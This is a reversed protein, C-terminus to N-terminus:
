TLAAPMISIPWEPVRYRVDSATPGHPNIVRLGASKFFEMAEHMEIEAVVRLVAENFQEQNLFGEYRHRHNLEEFWRHHTITIENLTSSDIVEANVLLYWGMPSPNWLTETTEGQYTIQWDMPDGGRLEFSWGPKYTLDSLWYQYIHPTGTTTLQNSSQTITFSM